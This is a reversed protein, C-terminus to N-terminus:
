SEFDRVTRGECVSDSGDKDDTEDTGLHNKSLIILFNYFLM